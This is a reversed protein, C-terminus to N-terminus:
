GGIPHFARSKGIHGGGSAICLKGVPRVIEVQTQEFRERQALAPPQLKAPLCLVGEIMRLKHLHRLSVNDISEGATKQVAIESITADTAHPELHFYQESPFDAPLGPLLAVAM